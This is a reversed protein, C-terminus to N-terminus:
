EFEEILWKYFEENSSFNRILFPHTSTRMGATDYSISCGWYSEHLAKAESFPMFVVKGDSRTIVEWDIIAVMDGREKILVCGHHGRGSLSISLYCTSLNRGSIDYYAYLLSTLVTAYDACVGKKQRFSIQAGWVPTELVEYKVSKLYTDNQWTITYWWEGINIFTLNETAGPFSFTFANSWAEYIRYLDSQFDEETGDWRHTANLVFTKMEENYTFMFRDMFDYYGMLTYNYPVILVSGIGELADALVRNAELVELYDEKLRDIETRLEEITSSLNRNEEMLEGYRKNLENYSYELWSVSQALEDKEAIKRNLEDRLGLNESRFYLYTCLNGVLSASLVLILLIRVKEM